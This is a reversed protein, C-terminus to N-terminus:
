VGSANHKDGGGAFAVGSVDRSRDRGIERLLQPQVDSVWVIKHPKPIAVRDTQERRQRAQSFGSANHRSAKVTKSFRSGTIYIRSSTIGCFKKIM